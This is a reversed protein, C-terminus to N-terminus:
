GHQQRMREQVLLSTECAGNCYKELKIDLDRIFNARYFAGSM